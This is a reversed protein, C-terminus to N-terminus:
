LAEITLSGSWPLTAGAHFAIATAPVGCGYATWRTIPEFAAKDACMVRYRRRRGVLIAGGPIPEVALATILRRAILHRGHGDVSDALTAVPGDFRWRRTVAGVGPLRAYGHHCLSVGAPPMKLAPPQGGVRRRFGDDYYPKNAPYPDAGDIEILGHVRASRYLAAEGADGYAGRGPDVIVAEHGCHLEFAGVDQHGHGPMHPWGEPSAHWLGSWAGFDARLWGDAALVAARTEGADARLSEVAAADVPDLLDIWGGSGGTLGALFPPPSDPSIDGVLPLGGPLMLRPLVALARAAVQRLAPAEPRAHARAALWAEVYTRTLLLHYHSSGERLVGSPRFIREAEALLIARGLEACAPMGLALGLLYLGRGNNALHNSTHHDGFYELRSAIAPGHAALLALTPEAPGPLGHRRAFALVNVAREAATYPHWPWDGSPTTFRAAWAQWLAAVVAPLSTFGPDMLPVWAFRHLALLTETDNHTASFVREPHAPDVRLSAAPLPLEIATTWPTMPRLSALSSVPVEPALGAWDAGLYPPRHPTFPPAPAARGTTREWLWRRLVPDAVLQRGKRVVAGIM